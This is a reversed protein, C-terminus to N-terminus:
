GVSDTTAMNPVAGIFAPSGLLRNAASHIKPAFSCIFYAAAGVLKVGV